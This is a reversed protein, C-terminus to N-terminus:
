KPCHVYKAINSRDKDVVLRVYDAVDEVVQMLM